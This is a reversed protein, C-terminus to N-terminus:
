LATAHWSLRPSTVATQDKELPGFKKVEIDQALISFSILSFLLTSFCKEDYEKNTRTFITDKCGILLM